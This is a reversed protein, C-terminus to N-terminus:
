LSQLESTHEESRDDPFGTLKQWEGGPELRYMSGIANPRNAATGVLMLEKM